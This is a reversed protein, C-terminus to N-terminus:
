FGKDMLSWLVDTDINQAKKMAQRKKLFLLSRFVGIIRGKVVKSVAGKKKIRRLTKITDIDGRILNPLMRFILKMPLNKLLLATNNRFTMYLSFGPNKGSSASGMHYARADPVLYNDWGMVTARMSLDVDELYMFFQEDFIEEGFPQAELFSRTVLCAAANVGFVRKPGFDNTYYYRWGGQTGQGNRALFIHTSDVIAHNYYDLTTGQFLAGKPKLEAFKVIQETWKPDLRADSNLLVVHAVDEDKLAAAIGINNGRAFGTNSGTQIIRVDPYKKEVLAVSDDASDNDVYYAVKDPYTQEAISAFCEDLLDSNNWGIVIYAVKNM